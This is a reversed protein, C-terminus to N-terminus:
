TRLRAGYKRDLEGSISDMCKTVEEDTLTRDEAQFKLSFALSRYGDQIQGGEYVDFLSVSTLMRGGSRSIADGIKEAPAEKPALVAIDREVSPYRPLPQYKRVADA